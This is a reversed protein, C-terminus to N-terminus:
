RQPHSDAASGVCVVQHVHPQRDDTAHEKRLQAPPQADQCEQVRSRAPEDKYADISLEVLLTQVLRLLSHEYGLVVALATNCCRCENEDDLDSRPSENGLRRDIETAMVQGVPICMSSDAPRPCGALNRGTFALYVCNVARALVVYEGAARARYRNKPPLHM